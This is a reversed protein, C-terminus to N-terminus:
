GSWVKVDLENIIWMILMKVDVAQTEWM